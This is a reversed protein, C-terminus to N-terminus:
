SVDEDVKPRLSKCYERGLRMAEEFEPDNRYVGVIRKWWAIASPSKKATLQKKLQAVEAELANLREEVSTTAM